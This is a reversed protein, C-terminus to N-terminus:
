KVDLPESGKAKGSADTTIKEVRAEAAKLLEECARATEEIVASYFRFTGGETIGVRYVCPPMLLLGDVKRDLAHRALRAIDPISLAGISVILRSPDVGGALIHDLAANRDEVSFEAGEGTTGFLTVGDCGQELLTRCHELLLRSDPRYDPTVPTAAAVILCDTKPLSAM